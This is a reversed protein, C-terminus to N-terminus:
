AARELRELKVLMTGHGTDVVAQYGDAPQVFSVTLIGDIVLKDGRKYIPDTM